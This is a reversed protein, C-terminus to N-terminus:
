RALRAALGQAYARRSAPDAATVSVEGVFSGRSFYIDVGYLPHKGPVGLTGEMGFSSAGLGAPAFFRESVTLGASRLPGVNADDRRWFAVGARAAAASRYRDVETRVELLGHGADLAHLASDDYDLAYGTIRGLRELQAATVKGTANSAAAANTQVGSYPDLPLASAAPGLDAKALPVPALSPQTPAASATAVAGVAVM